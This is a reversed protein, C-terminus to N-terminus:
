KENNEKSNIIEKLLNSDSTTIVKNSSDASVEFVGFVLNFDGLAEIKKQSLKAIIQGKQANNFEFARGENFLTLAYLTNTPNDNADREEIM